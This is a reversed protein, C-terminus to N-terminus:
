DINEFTFHLHFLRMAEFTSGKPCGTQHTCLWEQECPYQAFFSFCLNEGSPSDIYGAVELCNFDKGSSEICM